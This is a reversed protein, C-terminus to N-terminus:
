VLAEQSVSAPSTEEERWALGRAALKAFLTPLGAGGIRDVPWWQGDM